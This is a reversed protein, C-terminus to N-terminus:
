HPVMSFLPHFMVTIMRLIRQTSRPIRWHITVLPMSHLYKLMGCWYLRLLDSVITGRSLPHNLVFLIPYDRLEEGARTRHRNHLLRSYATLQMCLSCRLPLALGGKGPFAIIELDPVKPDALNEIQKDLINAQGPELKGGKKLAEVSEAARKILTSAESTASQFPIYAFSTIGIRHM